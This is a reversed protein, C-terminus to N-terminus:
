KSVYKKCRRWLSPKEDKYVTLTRGVSVPWKLSAHEVEVALVAGEDKDASPTITISCLCNYMGIWSKAMKVDMEVSLLTRSEDGKELLPLNHFKNDRQTNLLDNASKNSPTQDTSDWSAILQRKIEHRRKLYVNIQIEKQKFNTIQCTLTTRKMHPISRDGSIESLSPEGLKFFRWFNVDFHMGLLYSIIIGSIAIYIKVRVDDTAVLSSILAVILYVIMICSAVFIFRLVTYIWPRRGKKFYMKLFYTLFTIVCFAFLSFVIDKLPSWGPM